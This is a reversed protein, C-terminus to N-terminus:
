KTLSDFGHEREECANYMEETHPEEKPLKRYGLQHIIQSAIARLCSYIHQKSAGKYKATNELFGGDLECQLINVVANVKATWQTLEKGQAEQETM